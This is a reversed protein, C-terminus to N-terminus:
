ITFPLFPSGLLLAISPLAQFAMPFRWPFESTSGSATMFYLGFNLWSSLGYGIGFAVGHMCVMMGRNQPTSVEAQYLPICSSLVGIAVGSFFRGILFMASHVSGAALASGLIMSVAGGQITRKRSYRDATWPVVISGIIGGVSQVANFASLFRSTRAYGPTGVEGELGLSKFFSPQGIISGLVALAYSCSVSGLAVFLVVGFNYGSTIYKM